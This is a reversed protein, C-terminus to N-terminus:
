DLPEVAQDHRPVRDRSRDLPDSQRGCLARQLLDSAEDRACSLDFEDVRSSGLLEVELDNHRQVVHRHRLFAGVVGDPRRNVGLDQLEDGLVARGDDEDVVAAQRLSQRQTQVLEVPFVAAAAFGGRGGVRCRLRRRPFVPVLRDLDRAGM